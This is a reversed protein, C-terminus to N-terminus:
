RMRPKANIEDWLDEILVALTRVEDDCDDAKHFEGSRCYATALKEWSAIARQAMAIRTRPALANGTRPDIAELVQQTTNPM